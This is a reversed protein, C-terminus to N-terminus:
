VIDQFILSRSTGSYGGDVGDVDLDYVKCLGSRM